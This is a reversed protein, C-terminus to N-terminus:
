SLLLFTAFADIISTKVDWQGQLRAFCRHFPRGFWAIPRFNYAHLELLFYTVVLLMLPFFGIAYDLVLATLTNVKLCIHPIPTRFFDLNWIGYMAVVIRAVFSFEPLDQLTLLIVRANAPAAVIQSVLVFANLQPSTVSVRFSLIIIFFVTLPLFAALIYKLWNYRTNSCEVCWLDYSYVPPSFGDQCQGCLRGTRKLRGCMADNLESINISQPLHYHLSSHVRGTIYWQNYICLGTVTGLYKDHTVCYFWLIYSEQLLSNCIM